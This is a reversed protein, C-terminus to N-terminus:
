SRLNQDIPTPSLVRRLCDCGRGALLILSDRPKSLMFLAMLASVSVAKSLSM